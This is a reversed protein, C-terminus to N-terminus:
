IVDKVKKKQPRTLKDYPLGFVLYSNIENQNLRIGIGIQKSSKILGRSILRRVHRQSLRLYDASEKVSLWPSRKDCVSMSLM